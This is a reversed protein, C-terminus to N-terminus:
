NAAAAEKLYAIVDAIDEEKKLGVFTMKNGIIYGKPDALYAALTTEDWTVGSDKMADSYKFGEVTGSARGIIDVLHPGVKNQEKDVVHCTKCKKYVKEGNAADGEACATGTLMTGALAAAAISALIKRLMSM